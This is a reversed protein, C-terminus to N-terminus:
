DYDREQICFKFINWSPLSRAVIKYDEVQLTAIIVLLENYLVWRPTKYKIVERKNTDTTM